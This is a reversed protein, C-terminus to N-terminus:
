YCSKLLMQCFIFSPKAKIRKLFKHTLRLSQQRVRLQSFSQHLIPLEVEVLVVAKFPLSFGVLQQHVSQLLRLTLSTLGARSVKEPHLFLHVESVVCDTWVDDM